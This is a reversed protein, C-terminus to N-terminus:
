TGRVLYGTRAFLSFVSVYIKDKGANGAMVDIVGSVREGVPVRSWDVSVWIREEQKTVGEKRNVIIWDDSVELNWELPALGKNFLDFYYSQRFYTNFAPLTRISSKGRLM